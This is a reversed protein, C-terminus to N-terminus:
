KNLTTITECESLISRALILSAVSTQQRMDGNLIDFHKALILEADSRRILENHKNDDTMTEGNRM